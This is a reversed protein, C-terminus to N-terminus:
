GGTLDAVIKYPFPSGTLTAINPLTNSGLAAFLKPYLLENFTSGDAPLLDFIAGGQFAFWKEEDTIIADGIQTGAGVAPSFPNGEGVILPLFDEVKSM